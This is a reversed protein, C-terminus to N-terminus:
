LAARMAALVAREDPLARDADGTLFLRIQGIAQHVLLDFGSIVTGGVGSWQAALASPWPDYSVDFLVSSRRIEGAFVLDTGGGPVTSVIADPAILSRDQVGWRRVIVEVSM